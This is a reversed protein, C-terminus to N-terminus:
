NDLGKVETKSILVFKEGNFKYRLTYSKAKADDGDPLGNLDDETYSYQLEQKTDDYEFPIQNGIRSEIFMNCKKQDEGGCYIVLADPKVEIMYAVSYLCTSCVRKGGLLLYLQKGNTTNLKHISNFAVGHLFSSEADESGNNTTTDPLLVITNNITAFAINSYSHWSGGTNEYWGAVHLKEDASSTIDIGLTDRLFPLPNQKGFAPNALLKNLRQYLYANYDFYNNTDNDFPQWLKFSDAAAKTSLKDVLLSGTQSFCPQMSLLLMILVIRNMCYLYKNFCFVRCLAPNKM